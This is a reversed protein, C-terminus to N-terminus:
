HQQILFVCCLIVYSHVSMCITIIFTNDPLPGVDHAAYEYFRASGSHQRQREGFTLSLQYPILSVQKRLSLFFRLSECRFSTLGNGLSWVLLSWGGNFSFDLNERSTKNLDYRHLRHIFGFRLCM